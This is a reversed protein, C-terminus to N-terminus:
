KASFDPFPEIDFREALTQDALPRLTVALPVKRGGVKLLLHLALSFLFDGQPKAKLPVRAHEFLVALQQRLGQFLSLSLSAFDVVGFM